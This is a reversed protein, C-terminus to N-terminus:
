MVLSPLNEESLAHKQAEIPPETITPIASNRRNTGCSSALNHASVSFQKGVVM